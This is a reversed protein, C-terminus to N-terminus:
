LPTLTVTRYLALNVAQVAASGAQVELIGVAPLTDFEQLTVWPGYTVTSGRPVQTVQPPAYVYATGAANVGVDSTSIPM